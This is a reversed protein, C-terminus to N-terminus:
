SLRLSWVSAGTRILRSQLNKKANNLMVRAANVLPTVNAWWRHARYRQRRLTRECHGLVAKDLGRLWAVFAPPLRKSFVAPSGHGRIRTGEPAREVDQGEGAEYYWKWALRQRADHIAIRMADM